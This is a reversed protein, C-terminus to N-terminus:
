SEIGEKVELPDLGVFRGGGFFGSWHRLILFGTLRMTLDWQKEYSPDKTGGAPSEHKFSPSLPVHEM